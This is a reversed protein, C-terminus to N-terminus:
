LDRTLKAVEVEARLEIEEIIENLKPDDSLKRKQRLAQALETLKDKSLVGGLIALRLEDLRGLIDEGYQFMLGKSRGDTSTPVEQVALISDVAGVASPGEVGYVDGAEGAGAAGRVQDAFEGAKAISKKKKASATQKASGVKSIKM